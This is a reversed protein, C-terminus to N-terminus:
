IIIQSPSICRLARSRIGLVVRFLIVSLSPLELVSSSTCMFSQYQCQPPQQSPSRRISHLGLQHRIGLGDTGDACYGHKGKRKCSLCKFSITNSAQPIASCSTSTSVHLIPFICARRQIRTPKRPFQPVSDFWRFGTFGTGVGQTERM